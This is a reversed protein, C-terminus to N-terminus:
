PPSKAFQERTTNGDENNAAIDAKADASNRLLRRRAVEDRRIRQLLDSITGQVSALLVAVGKDQTLMMRTIGFEKEMRQEMVAPSQNATSPAESDELDELEVKDETAEGDVGALRYTVVMPPFSELITNDDSGVGSGEGSANARNRASVLGSSSFIMSLGSGTSIMQHSPGAGAVGLSSASTANEEVYKRWLVQHVVRLKLKMDLIKNAV